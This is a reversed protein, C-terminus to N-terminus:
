GPLKWLGYARGNFFPFTGTSLLLLKLKFRTCVIGTARSRQRLEAGGKKGSLTRLM